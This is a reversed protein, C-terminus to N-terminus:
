VCVGASAVNLFAAKTRLALSPKEDMAVTADTHVLTLRDRDYHGVDNLYSQLLDTDGVLLLELYSFTNLARLAARIRSRPSEDGSMIDLAVRM